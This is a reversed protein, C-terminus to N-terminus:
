PRPKYRELVECVECTEPSPTECGHWVAVAAGLEALAKLANLAGKKSRGLEDELLACRAQAADRERIAHAAKEALMAGEAKLRAVEAHQKEDTM